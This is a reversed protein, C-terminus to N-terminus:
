SWAPESRESTLVLDFGFTEDWYIENRGEAIPQFISQEKFRYNYLNETEGEITYKTITKNKSDVIVYEGKDLTSLLKYTHGGILIEPDVCKGYITMVFPSQGIVDNMIEKSKTNEAYDWPYEHPFHGFDTGDETDTDGNVIIRKIDDIDEIEALITQVEASLVRFYPEWLVYMVRLDDYVHRKRIRIYLTLGELHVFEEAPFELRTKDPLTNAYCAASQFESKLYPQDGECYITTSGAYTRLNNLQIQLDDALVAGQGGRFVKWLGETDRSIYEEEMLPSLLNFSIRTEDIGAELEEYSFRELYDYSCNELYEYSNRVANKDKVSILTFQSVGEETGWIQMIANADESLTSDVVFGERYDVPDFDTDPIRNTGAPLHNCTYIGANEDSLETRYTIYDADILRECTDLDVAKLGLRELVGWVGNKFLVDFYDNYSRLPGTDVQYHHISGTERLVSLTILENEGISVLWQDTFGPLTYESFDVYASAPFSYATEKIWQPRDSVFQITTDLSNSTGEWETKASAFIWGQVYSNNVYLKGPAKMVIDLETVRHLNDVAAAFEEGTQASITLTISKEKVGRQFGTIRGYNSTVYDWSYDLIDGTQAKYPWNVLDIKDGASNEYFIKM